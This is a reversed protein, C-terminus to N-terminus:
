NNNGLLKDVESILEALGSGTKASIPLVKEKIKKRFEGLNVEAQPLDMKNAVIVQPKEALGHNYEKLEFNLNAYDEIPNRGDVGAMDIIHLLYKTREIHRLFKLGLGKGKHAGEILGPIDAVILTHEKNLKVVGLHPFKTTFPYDAIKPHADSVKSILSSKGANPYGVLGVDAILKLELKIKKKEGDQPPLPQRGSFNGQGGLGGRGVIVEEEAETLDRILLGTDNDYVLTGPPVKIVCDKGRAGQKNNSGGLGGRQGEFHQRYQFDLLTAINYDAKIIIDGGKGGNGGDPKRYRSFKDKYFSVCGKGGNGAQIYITVEDVFM